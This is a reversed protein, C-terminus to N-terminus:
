VLGWVWFPNPDSSERYRFLPPLIRVTRLAAPGTAELFSDGVGLVAQSVGINPVGGFHHNGFPIEKELSKKEPEM